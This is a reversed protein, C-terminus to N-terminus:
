HIIQYTYENAYKMTQKPFNVGFCMWDAKRRVHGAWLGAQCEARWGVMAGFERNTQCTQGLDICFIELERNLTGNLEDNLEGMLRHVTWLLNQDNLVFVAQLLNIMWTDPYYFAHERYCVQKCYGESAVYWGDRHQVLANLENKLLIAVESSVIWTIWLSLIAQM